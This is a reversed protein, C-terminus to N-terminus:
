RATPDLGKLGSALALRLWVHPNSGGFFISNWCCFHMQRFVSYPFRGSGLPKFLEHGANLPVCGFQYTNGLSPQTCSFGATTSLQQQVSIESVFVLRCFEISIGLWQQAFFVTQIELKRKVEKWPLWIQGHNAWATRQGEEASSTKLHRRRRLPKRHETQPDVAPM